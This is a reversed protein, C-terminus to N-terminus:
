AKSNVTFSTIYLDVHVSDETTSIYLTFSLARIVRQHCSALFSVLTEWVSILVTINM